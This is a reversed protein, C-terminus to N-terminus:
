SIMEALIANAESLKSETMVVMANEERVPNSNETILAFGEEDFTIWHWEGKEVVYLTFPELRVATIAGIEDEKGATLLIASGRLLLFSENTGLHRGMTKLSYFDNRGKDYSSRALLWGDSKFMPMFGSGAMPEIIM